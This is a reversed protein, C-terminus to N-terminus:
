YYHTRVKIINQTIKVDVVLFFLGSTLGFTVPVFAASTLFATLKNSTSLGVFVKVIFIYITMIVSILFFYKCLKVTSQYINEINIPVGEFNQTIATAKTTHIRRDLLHAVYLSVIVQILCM